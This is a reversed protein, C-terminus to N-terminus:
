NVEFYHICKVVDFFTCYIIGIEHFIDNTYILKEIIEYNCTNLNFVLLILNYRKM